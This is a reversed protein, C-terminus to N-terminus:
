EDKTNEKEDGDDGSDDDKKKSDSDDLHVDYTKGDEGQVDAEGDSDIDAATIHDENLYGGNPFHIEVVQCDEVDVDLTYTASYETKPNHYGVTASYTGDDYGCDESGSHYSHVTQNDTEHIHNDTHSDSCSLHITLLVFTLSANVIKM